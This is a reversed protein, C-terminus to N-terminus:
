ANPEKPTSPDAGWEAWSGDYVRLGRYGLEDLTAYVASASVGGGCYLVTPGNPSIGAREALARVEEASVREGGPTAFLEPAPM